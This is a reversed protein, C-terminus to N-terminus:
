SAYDNIQILNLTCANEVNECMNVLDKIKLLGSHICYMSGKEKLANIFNSLELEVEFSTDEVTNEVTKVSTIDFYWDKHQYRMRDKNRQYLKIKNFDDQPDMFDVTPVPEEKSICIRIDFPTGEFVFDLSVLKTKKICERKGDAYISMRLGRNFFDNVVERRTSTWGNNTKLRDTIKIFFDEPISTNFIKDDDELFGLRFELELHPTSKYKELYPIIKEIADNFHLIKEM